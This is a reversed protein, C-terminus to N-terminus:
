RENKSTANKKLPNHLSLQGKQLLNCLLYMSSSSRLFLSLRLLFCSFFMPYIHFNDSFDISIAHAGAICAGGRPLLVLFTTAHPSAVFAICGFPLQHECASCIISHSRTTNASAPKFRFPASSTAFLASAVIPV